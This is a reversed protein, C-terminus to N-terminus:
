LFPFLIFVTTENSQHDLEMVTANVSIDASLYGALMINYERMHSKHLISRRNCKQKGLTNFLFTSINAETSTIQAHM